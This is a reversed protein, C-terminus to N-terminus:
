GPVANIRWRGPDRKLVRQGRYYDRSLGALDLPDIPTDQKFSADPVVIAITTGRRLSLRVHTVNGGADCIFEPALQSLHSRSTALVRPVRSPAPNPWDITATRQALLWTWADPKVNGQGALEVVARREDFAPRQALYVGAGIAVLASAGVITIVAGRRLMAAGITACALVAAISFVTMRTAPDGSHIGEVPLYADDSFRTRAVPLPEVGALDLTAARGGARVNFSAPAQPRLVLPVTIQRRGDSHVEVPWTHDSEIRLTQAPLAPDFTLQLKARDAVEVRLQASASAAFCLAIVIFALRSVDRLRRPGGLIRSRVSSRSSTTEEFGPTYVGPGTQNRKPSGHGIAWEPGPM